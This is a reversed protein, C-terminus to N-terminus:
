EKNEETSPSSLPYKWEWNEEIGVGLLIPGVILYVSIEPPIWHCFSVEIGLGWRDWGVEAVFLPHWRSIRKDTM